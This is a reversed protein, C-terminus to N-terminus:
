SNNVAEPYKFPGVCDTSRHVATAGTQGSDVAWQADLMPEGNRLTLRKKEIPARRHLVDDFSYVLPEVRHDLLTPLTLKVGVIPGAQTCVVWWYPISIKSSPM